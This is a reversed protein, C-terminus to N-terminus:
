YQIALMFWKIPNVNAKLSEKWVLLAVGGRCSNVSNVLPQSSPLRSLIDMILGHPLEAVLCNSEATNSSEPNRSM